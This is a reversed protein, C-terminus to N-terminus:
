RGEEKLVEDGGTKRGGGRDGGCCHERVLRFLIEFDVPKKVVAPKSFLAPANVSVLVMPLTAVRDEPTLAAFVRPWDFRITLPDVLLLCPRRVTELLEIADDVADTAVTVYGRADLFIAISERLRQDDEILLVSAPCSPTSM